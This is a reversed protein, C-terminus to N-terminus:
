LDTIQVRSRYRGSRIQMGGKVEIKEAWLPGILFGGTGNLGAQFSSSNWTYFMWILASKVESFCSIGLNHSLIADAM